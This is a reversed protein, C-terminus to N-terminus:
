VEEEFKKLRYARTYENVERVLFMGILSAFIGFFSNTAGKYMKNVKEKKWKVFKSYNGNEKNETDQIESELNVIAKDLSNKSDSILTIVELNTYPLTKTRKDLDEKTIKLNKISSCTNKYDRVEQTQQYPNRLENVLGLSLALTCVMSCGFSSIKGTTYIYKNALNHTYNIKNREDDINKDM